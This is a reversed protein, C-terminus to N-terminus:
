LKRAVEEIEFCEIIDKLHIDNYNELMIGCEFGARAEKVDDKERRVSKISGTHVVIGNRILRVKAGRRVIGDLVMCGAIKGVKSVEFVKRVEASGLVNERTDPTLMGSLLAKVDDILDYIISYYKVRLQDRAIQDKAQASSRVNFGLLMANSAKALAVDNETIEGVGSHIVKIAVEDNSLKILSSCIAEASGQVDAKVIISLIKLKEDEKLKTFMQEVTKGSSSVVWQMERKKRDRYNAVEKAKAEDEVVIFDDGPITTGSFGVIEGPTGPTLQKLAQRCDNRIARVKGQISGSVFIDGVKLTGSNILVTAVPGLGKEVKSEIVIGEAGRNPNATLELMEAQVLIAEELKDLNLGAKASIEVDIVDGGYSEVFIEYNMLDKRVKDANAGPKDIKNIAVIIPVEAAKAHNIAEITQEKVSDDAAVVLVVVDTVNAGRSRMETFAAHGPTDIFTIKRNDSLTVQYAGIGQTIGGAENLAVDTKRLADLLSTKGHDVHGMITVVPPRPLLDAPNDVKKLDLEVDSDSVRKIKHGFESVVLEATDADIIQNATVMMGMKMLCKVVEGTRTAMRNSLEQVSITEPIIVEKIVKIEENQANFHQKNKQRARKLSSLSRTRGEDDSDLANYISIRSNSTAGYKGKLEKIDKKVAPVKRQNSLKAVSSDEEDVDNRRHPHFEKKPMVKTHNEKTESFNSRKKEEPKKSSESNSHRSQEEARQRAKEEAEKKAQELQQLKKEEAERKQRAEQEAKLREQEEKEKQARIQEQKKNERIADKVVQLRTQMEESTLGGNQSPVNNSNRKTDSTAAGGVRKRKVEVAVIKSKGHSFSQRVKNTEGSGKNIGSLHSLSLTGKKVDAM